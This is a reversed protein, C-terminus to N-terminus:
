GNGIVARLFDVTDHLDYGEVDALLILNSVVWPGFDYSDVSGSNIRDLTDKVSQSFLEEFSRRDISVPAEYNAAAAKLAEAFSNLSAM